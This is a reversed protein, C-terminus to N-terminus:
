SGPCEKVVTTTPSAGAKTAFFAHYGGWFGTVGVM